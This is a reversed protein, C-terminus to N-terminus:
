AIRKTTSKVKKCGYEKKNDELTNKTRICRKKSGNFIWAKHKKSFWFDLEKLNEKYAYSNFAYIWTGIVQIDIDFNIIKKIINSFIVIDEASYEKESDDFITSTTFNMFDDYQKLLEKFDAENGGCDPHLKKAFTKYVKKAETFDKCEKFYNM